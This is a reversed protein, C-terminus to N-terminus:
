GRRKLSLTLEFEAVVEDPNISPVIARARIPKQVRESSALAANVLETVERGSDCIFHVPGEARRHYSAKFDKFILDVRKGSAKIRNMAILGVATDAGVALAGFYMSRLHNRTRWGLPIKVEVREASLDIITPSCFGLIPIKWWAFIRVGLTERWFRNFIWM